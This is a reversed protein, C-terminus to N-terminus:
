DALIAPLSLKQTNRKHAKNPKPADGWRGEDDDHEHENDHEHELELRAAFNHSRIGPFDCHLSVILWETDDERKLLSELVLVLM